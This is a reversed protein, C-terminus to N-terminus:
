ALAISKSFNRTERERRHHLTGAFLLVSASIICFKGTKEFSGLRGLARLLAVRRSRALHRCNCKKADNGAALSTDVHLSLSSCPAMGARKMFGLM